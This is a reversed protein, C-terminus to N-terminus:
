QRGLNPWWGYVALCAARFRVWFPVVRFFHQVDYRKGEGRKPARKPELECDVWTWTFSIGLGPVSDLHTMGRRSGAPVALEDNAHMCETNCERRFLM